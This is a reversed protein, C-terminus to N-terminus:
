DCKHRIQIKILRLPKTEVVKIETWRKKHFVCNAEKSMYDITDGCLYIGMQSQNAWNSQTQYVTKGCQYRLSQVM